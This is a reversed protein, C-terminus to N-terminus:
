CPASFRTRLTARKGSSRIKPQQPATGVEHLASQAAGALRLVRERTGCLLMEGSM